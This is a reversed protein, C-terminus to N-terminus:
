NSLRQRLEAINKAGMQVLANSMEDKLINAVHSGGERGIAAIGYLFPRGVLVFDAGIALARLIDLGSRIGSDFVVPFNPGVAKRISQLVSISAPNADFQRGGHNSVIVGDVGTDIAISADSPRLVGKLLLRGKWQRRIEALYDWSLSGHLQGAIFNSVSKTSNKPVYREMNKFELKGRLELAALAWKPHRLIQFLMKPPLKIIPIEM